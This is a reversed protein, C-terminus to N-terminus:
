VEQLTSRGRAARHGMIDPSARLALQYLNRGRKPLAAHIKDRAPLGDVRNGPAFALVPERRSQAPRMQHRHAHAGNDAGADVRQGADARAERPRAFHQREQQASNDTGARREAIRFHRCHHRCGAAGVSIGIRHQPLQEGPDHAPAKNEFVRNGCARDCDSPRGMDRFEDVPRIPRDGVRQEMAHGRAPHDIQGGHDNRRDDGRQQHYARALAGGHIQEQHDDLQCCKHQEHHQCGAGEIRRPKM